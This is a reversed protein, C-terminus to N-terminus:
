SVHLLRPIVSRLGVRNIGGSLGCERGVRSYQIDQRQAPPDKARPVRLQGGSCPIKSPDNRSLEEKRTMVRLRPEQPSTDQPDISSIPPM